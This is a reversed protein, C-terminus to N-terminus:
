KDTEFEGLGQMIRDPLGRHVKMKFLFIAKHCEWPIEDEIEKL